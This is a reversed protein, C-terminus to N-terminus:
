GDQLRRSERKGLATVLSHVINPAEETMFRSLRQTSPETDAYGVV